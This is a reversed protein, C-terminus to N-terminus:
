MMDQRRFEQAIRGLTGNHRVSYGRWVSQIKVAAKYRRNHRVRDKKRMQYAAKQRKGVALATEQMANRRPGIRGEILGGTMGHVPAAVPSSMTFREEPMVAGNAFLVDGEVAIKPSVGLKSLQKRVSRQKKIKQKLERRNRYRHSKM